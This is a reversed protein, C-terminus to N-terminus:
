ARATWMSGPMPLSLPLWLIYQPDGRVTSVSFEHGSQGSFEHGSQGM